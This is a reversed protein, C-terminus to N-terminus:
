DSIRMEVLNLLKEQNINDFYGQIDVYVVWNGKSNCAKSIRELAQYASRKPRFGFSCEQFDVEFIPKM